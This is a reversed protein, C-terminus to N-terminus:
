DRIKCRERWRVRAKANREETGLRAQVARWVQQRLNPHIMRPPLHLWGLSDLAALADEWSDVTAVDRRIERRDEDDALMFPTQDVKHPFYRWGGDIREGSLM